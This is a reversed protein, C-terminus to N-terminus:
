KDPRTDAILAYGLQSLHSSIRRYGGLIELFFGSAEITTPSHHVLREFHASQVERCWANYEAKGEILRPALSQNQTALISIALALRELLKTWANELDARDEGSLATACRPSKLLADCLQKDVLDGVAELENSYTLLAFHLNRDKPSLEEVDIQSLYAKLDLYIHDLEDDMKRVRQALRTDQHILALHFGELMSKAIDALRLTERNANVVAIWPTSLAQSDLYSQPASLSLDEEEGGGKEPEVIQNILRCLPLILPLGILAVVINYATHLNAIQHTLDGPGKQVIQILPGMGLYCLSAVLSQLLLNALGLRRGELTSWGAFLNTCAIGVNAGVVMPVAMSLLQTVEGGGESLGVAMGIALGIIGTTSQVLLTLAATILILIFPHHSLIKLVQILDGEPDVQAATQGIVGMGMFVIGLAILCQGIGRPLNRKLFQFLIVGPVILFAFYSSLHLSVLQVSATIGVNAGLVIGLMQRAPLKAANMMQVVMTAIGTSSPALSAVMVGTLFTKGRHQTARALSEQLRQGFLRNLGKRLFRIGFLILALGGIVNLYLM